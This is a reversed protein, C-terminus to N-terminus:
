LKKQHLLGQAIKAARGAAGPTGLLQRVGSLKQRYDSLNDLMDLAAACINEPTAAHQLLEPMVERDMIINALGAYRVKVVARAVRFTVPSM